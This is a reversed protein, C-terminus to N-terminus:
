ALMSDGDSSISSVRGFACILVLLEVEFRSVWKKRSLGLKDTVFSPVQTIKGMNSNKNLGKGVIKHALTEAETM